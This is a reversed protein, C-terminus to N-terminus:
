MDKNITYEHLIMVAFLSSIDGQNLANVLTHKTMYKM